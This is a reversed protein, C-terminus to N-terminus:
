EKTPKLKQCPWPCIPELKCGTEDVPCFAAAERTQTASREAKEARSKQQDHASRWVEADGRAELLARELVDAARLMLREFGPVDYEGPPLGAKFPCGFRMQAIEADGDLPESSSPASIARKLAVWEPCRDWASLELSCRSELAQMLAAPDTPLEAIREELWHRLHENFASGMPDERIDAAVCDAGSPFPQQSLLPTELDKIRQWLGVAYQHWLHGADYNDGLARAYDWPSQQLPPLDSM